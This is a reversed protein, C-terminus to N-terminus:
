FTKADVFRYRVDNKIMRESAENIQKAAVVEVGLRHRACLELM